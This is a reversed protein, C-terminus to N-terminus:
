SPRYTGFASCIFVGVLVTAAGKSASPELFTPIRAVWVKSMRPGLTDSGTCTFMRHWIIRTQRMTSQTYRLKEICLCMMDGGDPVIVGMDLRASVGVGPSVVTVDVGISIVARM